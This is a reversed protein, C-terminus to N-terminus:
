NRSASEWLALPSSIPPETEPASPSHAAGSPFTGQPHTQDGCPWPGSTHQGCLPCSPAPREDAAGKVQIIVVIQGDRADDVELHHDVILKQILSHAANPQPTEAADVADEADDNDAAASAAVPSASGTASRGSSRDMESLKRLLFYQSHELRELSDGPDDSSAIKKRLSELEVLQRKLERAFDDHSWVM